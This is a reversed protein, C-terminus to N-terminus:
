QDKAQRRRRDTESLLRAFVLEWRVRDRRIEARRRERLPLLRLAGRKPFSLGTQEKLGEEKRWCLDGM